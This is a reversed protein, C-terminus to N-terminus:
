CNLQVNPGSHSDDESTPLELIHGQPLARFSAHAQQRLLHQLIPRASCNAAFHREESCLFCRPPCRDLQRRPLRPFNMEDGYDHYLHRAPATPPAQATVAATAAPAPTAAMAAALPPTAKHTTTQEHADKLDKKVIRIQEQMSNVLHEM